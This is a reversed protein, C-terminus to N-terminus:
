SRRRKRVAGIAISGLALSLLQWTGPEPIDALYGGSGPDGFGLINYANTRGEVVEGWLVPTVSQGKYVYLTNSQTGDQNIFYFSDTTGTSQTYMTPLGSAVVNVTNIQNLTLSATASDIGTGPVINASVAYFFGIQFAGAVNFPSAVPCDAGLCVQQPSFALFEAHVKPGPMPAPTGWELQNSPLATADAGLPTFSTFQAYNDTDVITAASIATSVALVAAAARTLACFRTM